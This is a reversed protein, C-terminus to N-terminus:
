ELCGDHEDRLHFSFWTISASPFATERAASFHSNFKVFRLPYLIVKFDSNLSMAELLKRRVIFNYPKGSPKSSM